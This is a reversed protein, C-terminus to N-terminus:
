VKPDEAFLLIISNMQKNTQKSVLHLKFLLTCRCSRERLTAGGLTCIDRPDWFHSLACVDNCHGDLLRKIEVSFCYIIILAFTYHKVSLGINEKSQFIRPFYAFSTIYEPKMKSILFSVFLDLSKDLTMSIQLSCILDEPEEDQEKWSVM